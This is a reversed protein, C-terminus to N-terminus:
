ADQSSIRARLGDGRCHGLADAAWEEQLLGERIGQAESAGFNELIENRKGDQSPSLRYAPLGGRGGGGRPKSLYRLIRANQPTDTRLRGPVLGLAALSFSIM